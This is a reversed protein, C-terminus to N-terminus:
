FFFQSRTISFGSCLKRARNTVSISITLM